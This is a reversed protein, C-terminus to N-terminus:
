ADNEEDPTGNGPQLLDEPVEVPMRLLAAGLTKGQADSRLSVTGGGDLADHLVLNVARLNPLEHRTVGSAHLPRIHESVREPTVQDLLVPYAADTSVWLGVNADGGKDGSRAAAITSLPVRM